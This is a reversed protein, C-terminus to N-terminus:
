PLLKKEIQLIKTQDDATKIELEIQKSLDKSFEKKIWACINDTEIKEQNIRIIEDGYKIQDKLDERFVVGVILKDDKFTPKFGYDQEDIVIIKEAEYPDFYFRKNKYDITMRGYDLVDAGLRSNNDNTTVTIVNQFEVENIKLSPLRMQQLLRSQDAGFVGLSFAGEGEGILEFVEDKQLAKLKQLNSSSLDYIGSMGTDILLQERAGDEGGLWVWLFPNSQIPSLFIKESNKRDLSLLNESDSFRVKQQQGDIQVISNRLMNSGIIGDLQLCDWIMPNEDFDLVVSAVNEFKLNGIKLSDVLVVEAQQTQNNADNVPLEFLQKYKREEQFSKSIVNPAGTDLLFRYTKGEIEVPVVIKKKEWEFSIEEFYNKSATSGINLYTKKSCGTLFLLSIILLLHKKM